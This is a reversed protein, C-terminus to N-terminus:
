ARPARVPDPRPSAQLLDAMRRADDIWAPAEGSEPGFALRDGRELLDVLAAATETGLTAPLEPAAAVEPTTRAHFGPGLCEVLARRLHARAAALTHVGASARPSSEVARRRLRWRVWGVLVAALVLGALALGALLPEFLADSPAIPGPNPRPLAPLL